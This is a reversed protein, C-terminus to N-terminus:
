PLCVVPLEPESCRGSLWLPRSSKGGRTRRAAPIPTETRPRVTRTFAGTKLVQHHQRGTVDFFSDEFAVWVTDGGSCREPKFPRCGLAWSEVASWRRCGDANGDSSVKWVKELMFTVFGKKRRRKREEKVKVFSSVRRTPLTKSIPQFFLLFCYKM